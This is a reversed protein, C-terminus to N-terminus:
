LSSLRLKIDAPPYPSMSSFCICFWLRCQAGLSFLWTGLNPLCGLGLNTPPESSTHLGSQLPHSAASAPPPTLPCATHASSVVGALGVAKPWAVLWAPDLPLPHCSLFILPKPLGQDSTVKVPIEGPDLTELYWVSRDRTRERFIQM